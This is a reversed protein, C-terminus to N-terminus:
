SVSRSRRFARARWTRCQTTFRGTPFFSRPVKKSAGVSSMEADSLSTETAQLFLRKTTELGNRQQPLLLLSLSPQLPSAIAMDLSAPALPLSPREFRPVAFCRNVQAGSEIDVDDPSSAVCRCM